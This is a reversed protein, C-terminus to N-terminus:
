HKLRQYLNFLLTYHKRSKINILLFCMPSCIRNQYTGESSCSLSLRVQADTCDQHLRRLEHAYLITSLSPEPWFTLNTCTTESHLRARKNPCHIVLMRHAQDNATSYSENLGRRQSVYWLNVGLLRQLRYPVLDPGAYRRDQNPDLGNSM